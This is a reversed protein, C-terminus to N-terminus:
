SGRRAPGRGPRQDPRHGLRHRGRDGTGRPALMVAMGHEALTGSLLLTDGPRVRDPGLHRGAPVVGVGSTTIYLGDAGGRAVVKTDGTVIAVGANAAAIQMDAVIRRLREVAFGEEIVFAASLWQPRAGSVALDNLRGMCRSTVSPAAPSSSPSCSMRTTSFAVRQGSPLALM